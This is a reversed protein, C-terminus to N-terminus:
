ILVRKIQLLHAYIESFLDGHTKNVLDDVYRCVVYDFIENKGTSLLDKMVNRTFVRNIARSNNAM